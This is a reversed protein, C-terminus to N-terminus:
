YLAEYYFFHDTIPETYYCDDGDPQRYAYGNESPVLPEGACWIRTM